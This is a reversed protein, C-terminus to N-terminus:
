SPPLSQLLVIIIQSASQLLREDTMLQPPEERRALFIDCLHTIVREGHMWIEPRINDKKSTLASYFASLLAHAYAANHEVISSAQNPHDVTSSARLLTTELRAFVRIMFSEFLAPRSCVSSLIMLSRKYLTRGERNAPAPAHDPLAAFLLPLTRTKMVSSLSV